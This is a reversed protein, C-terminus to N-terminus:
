ENLTSNNLRVFMLLLTVIQSRKQMALRTQDDKSKRLKMSSIFLALCVKVLKNCYDLFVEDNIFRECLIEMADYALKWFVPNNLFTKALFDILEVATTSKLKHHQISALIFEMDSVNLIYTKGESIKLQKAFPELFIDVPISSFSSFINEFNRLVM